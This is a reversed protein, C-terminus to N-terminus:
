ILEYLERLAKRQGAVSFREEVRARAARGMRERLGADDLLRAIAAAIALDDPPCLLGTEEPVVIDRPGADDIAVVPVGCAMSEALVRGFPERESTLVCLDLSALLPAADEQWPLWSVRGSFQPTTLRHRLLTCYTEDHHLDAGALVAHWPRDPLKALADLFLHHRKWPVFQAVMGILPEGAPLGLEKRVAPKDGHLHFHETDVAPQLLVSKDQGVGYQQVEERVASSIVAVRSARKYLLPGAIGLPVLDRVHWVAPAGRVRLLYLMAPTTNAHIIDPRVHEVIANIRRWGGHLSSFTRWLAEISAARRLPMLPVPETRIGLAAVARLLAGEPAAVVPTFRARDLAALMALLSREAGSIEGVASLYLITKM